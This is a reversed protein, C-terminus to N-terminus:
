QQGAAWHPPQAFPRIRDVEPIDQRSDRYEIREAMRYDSIDGPNGHEGHQGLPAVPENLTRQPDFERPSRARATRSGESRMTRPPRETTSSPWTTACGPRRVTATSNPVGSYAACTRSFRGGASTRRM